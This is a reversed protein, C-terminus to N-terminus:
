RKWSYDQNDAALPFDCANAGQDSVPMEYVRGVTADNFRDFAERDAESAILSDVSPWGSGIGVFNMCNIARNLLKMAADAEDQGRSAIAVRIARVYQDTALAKDDVAPVGWETRQVAAPADKERWPSNELLKPVAFAAHIAASTIAIAILAIVLRGNNNEM